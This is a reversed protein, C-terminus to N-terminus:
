PTLDLGLERPESSNVGTMLLVLVLIAWTVIMGIIFQLEYTVLFTEWSPSVLRVATESDQLYLTPSSDGSFKAILRVEWGPHLAPFLFNATHGEASADIDGDWAPPVPVKKASVFTGTGEPLMLTFSLKKFIKDHSINHLTVVITKNTATPKLETTFEIIPSALLRDVTHTVGWGISAFLITVVYPAKALRLRDLFQSM